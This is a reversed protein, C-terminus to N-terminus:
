FIEKCEAPFFGWGVCIIIVVFSFYIWVFVSCDHKEICALCAEIKAWDRAFDYLFAYHCNM